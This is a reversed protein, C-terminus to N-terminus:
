VSPLTQTVESSECEDPCHIRLVTAIGSQSFAFAWSRPLM